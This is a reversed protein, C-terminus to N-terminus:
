ATEDPPAHVALFQDLASWVSERPGPKEFLMEHRGEPVQLLEASNTRGARKVIAEPQVVTEADGLLFLQPLDPASAQDLAATERFAADAWSWSPGALLLDPERRGWEQIRAYAEADGTLVNEEFPDDLVTKAGRGLSYGDGRGLMVAVRAATRAVMRVLPSLNLGLMPASFAAAKYPGPGDVLRRMGIAGGMSHALMIVPGPPAQESLFTEFAAVDRQFEDFDGVHGRAPERGLRQSAGQGRWDLTAVAFGRSQLEAVVSYYKEIFETRGTFLAITGRPRVHPWIAARLAVGDSAQLRAVRAGPPAPAVSERLTPDAM